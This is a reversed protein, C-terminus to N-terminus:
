QKHMIASYVAMTEPSPEIGLDARLLGRCRNYARVADANNGLQRQCAMTRRYFEEALCDTEIGKSYQEVAREWEGIQEYHRGAALITRLLRNKLTERCAVTWALGTDAPLFPGKHLGVAKESLLAAQEVPTERIKELLHGLARSDVWCHLPNISLQRARYKVFVDGGLLRRLRALTTEFSKHGLDGDADPWLADILREEPVDEGGFAILAKLMDLPKKQEKGPFHLPEDDRVIEFRGLTYIKIPYPWEELCCATAACDPPQPPTLGLKVIVGKVYDPEIGEALAKAFLFRMVQPQYFELHVYGHRRGLSLGRHLALLGATEKGERLLFWADILLSYWEIVQSRISSSLRHAKQVHAKADKEHGQAYLVQAMGIHWLARYYPTGMRSAKAAATEMHEAARPQNGRLLAYWASNIHYFYSDLTNEMDLLCAMQQKLSIEARDLDGSAMEAAAGFGWLLSDFVHVGNRESLELGESLTHLAADYEATVWCHIGKMFKVRIVAFPSPQRYRIAAEAQELLVANKEYEGQWLYHLSMCFLTDMQIDFSPNEQLLASVRELWEQVRQPQDTKRLTLAILMRSSAMLDIDRSPFVPCIKRLKEFVAISDDLSKWEDLGFTHSDVIGAWSLYMGAADGQAKFAAFARELCSRTRPMDVPFACMGSWYLLWPESDTPGGSLAALWEEVTKNRGQGLLERAHRIVLRGLGGRDGADAYLRAADERQGSQELLQAATRQLVAVADPHFATRARNMLFARFLPHYQYNQSSGSLQETFFHRQHLSALIRGASGTGALKGALPISLTPLFATKLLFDQVPKETRNFIEGAFYDFVKECAFDVAVDAGTGDLRWRELMLIIGAAWGEAREHMAQICEHNLEPLRGRVLERSEDLTFRLENYHLLAITGSAQLRAFSAPPESRSIVVVRAGEPIRDFGTAIMDHFQSGAPIDQYNDLVLVGGQGTPSRLATIRSFLTEFYRRTFTPIGALYEPTLLPLSKRHRPAAKKAALGMYYFFTALDADGEDCTYWVSPLERADLYGAVLTSKGSGAPASIWIVPKEGLTDIRTFLRTRQVAGSLTPRTIKASM